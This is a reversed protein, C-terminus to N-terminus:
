FELSEWCGSLLGRNEPQGRSCFCIQIGELRFFLVVLPLFDREGSHEGKFMLLSIIKQATILLMCKPMLCVQTGAGHNVLSSDGWRADEEATLYSDCLKYGLAILHSLKFFQTPLLSKLLCMPGPCSAEHLRPFPLSPNSAWPFAQLVGPGRALGALSQRPTPLPLLQSPPRQHQGQTDCIVACPVPDMTPLALSLCTGLSTKRGARLFCLLCHELDLFVSAHTSARLM